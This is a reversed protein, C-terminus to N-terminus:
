IKKRMLNLIFAPIIRYDLPNMVFAKIFFYMARKQEGINQLGRAMLYAIKARCLYRRLFHFSSKDRARSFHDEIVAATAEVNRIVSRSEGGAHIRYYGLVDTIFKSEAGKEALRLWLDYDEATVFDENERFGGVNLLWQRELVVASTSICNGCFLLAKYTAAKEPGYHVIKDWGDGVWRESHCVLDGGLNLVQVCKELKDFEWFDDSDLFAVYKGHSLEIGRNRSAAIVGKNAFNELRLRPDRFGHIIDVTADTSFNNIIIAEWNKYSQARLSTIADSLFHAHNYTPIVVSVLPTERM